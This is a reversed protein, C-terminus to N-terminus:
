SHCPIAEMKAQKSEPGGLLEKATSTTLEEVLQDLDTTETAHFTTFITDEHAWGVRKVGPESVFTCPAVMRVVKGASAITIDGKSIVCLHQTKHVAGTLMAGKRILIERAYMGQAFYHRLPFDAPPLKALEDEFRYIQELTPTNTLENM